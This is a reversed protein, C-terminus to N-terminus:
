RGRSEALLLRELLLPNVVGKFRVKGGIAVVPVSTDYRAALEPDADIDVTRLTFKHRRRYGELLDIAKHCCCCHARTYVTVDLHRVDVKLRPRTWRSLLSLM